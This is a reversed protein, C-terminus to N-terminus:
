EPATESGTMAAIPSKAVIGTDYGESAAVARLQPEFAKAVSGTFNVKLKKGDRFYRVVNRRFFERFGTEAIELMAPEDIHASVFPALSALFRNPADEGPVPRYVRRIIEQADLCTQRRFADELWAPLMGKLYDSALRRGIWAGSGEDGLIYGGPSVNEVIKGKEYLCSNSGTGLICVVGTGDRGLLCRCAGLMDSEVTVSIDPYLAAIADRVAGCAKEGKCGAGYYEIREIWPVLKGTLDERFVRAIEQPSMVVPNVGRTVFERVVKGQQIEAWQINTSGADAIVHSASLLIDRM